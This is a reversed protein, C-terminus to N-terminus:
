IRGGTKLEDVMKDILTNASIAVDNVSLHHQKRGLKIVLDSKIM